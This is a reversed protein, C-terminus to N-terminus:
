SFIRQKYCNIKRYDGSLTNGKVRNINQKSNCFALIQYFNYKYVFGFLFFVIRIHAIERLPCM